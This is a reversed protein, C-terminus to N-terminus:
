PVGEEGSNLAGGGFSSSRSPKQSSLVPRQSEFYNGLRSIIRGFFVTFM